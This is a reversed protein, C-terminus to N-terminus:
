NQVHVEGTDMHMEVRSGQPVGSVAHEVGVICPIRLERAVIAAHSLMGGREVIIGVLLPFVITWGPDTQRTVLIKGTFDAAPDFDALVLAEGSIKDLPTRAATIGKLVGARPPPPADPRGRLEAEIEGASFESEIRRPLERGKWYEYEKKREAITDALGAPAHNSDIIGFIEELTLFFVSDPGSIFGRATFKGGIALFLRRTFGFILSRRFRTEERRYVSNVAWRSVAALLLRQPAPLKGPKEGPVADPREAGKESGGDRSALASQLISIFFDPQENITKSELKLENPTRSGFRELYSEIRRAAPAARRPGRLERLILAPSNGASFLGRLEPDEKILSVIKIIQCGPDLSVLPRRSQAFLHVYGNEEGLWARYLKDAAGASVMVAFDNAIPVQWRAVFERYVRYYLEKCAAPSMGGLDLGSLRAYVRDFRRNFRRILFGMFVFSAATRATQFVLRPLFVGYRLLAGRPAPPAYHYEKQLGLMKEFFGRNFSYGPLFSVLKYWNILDYYMRCGIFEVMKAFMASNRRIVGRSVGMMGCFHVYVEQYVARAFSYTLPTTVGSYSEAINSNDFIKM